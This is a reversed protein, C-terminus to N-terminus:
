SGLGNLSYEAEKDFTELLETARDVDKKHVDLKVNTAGETYAGGQVAGMTPSDESRLKCKVQNAKLFAYKTHVEDATNGSGALMTTWSRGRMVLGAIILAAVVVIIALEM